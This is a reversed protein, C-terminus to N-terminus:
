SIAETRIVEPGDDVTRSSVEEGDSLYRASADAADDADLEFTIHETRSVLVSFRPM